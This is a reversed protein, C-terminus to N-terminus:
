VDDTRAHFRELALTLEQRGQCKRDVDPEDCLDLAVVTPEPQQERTTPVGALTDVIRLRVVRTADTAPRSTIRDVIALNSRTVYADLEGPDVGLTHRAADSLASVGAPLLRNDNFLAALAAPDVRRHIIQARRRLQWVLTDVDIGSLLRKLRRIKQPNVGVPTGGSLIRLVIWASAPELPRGARRPSSALLAIDRVAVAVRGADDTREELVGSSVLRYIQQRSVGLRRAAEAVRVLEDQVGM